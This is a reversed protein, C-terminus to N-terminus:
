RHGNGGGHPSENGRVNGGGGPSRIPRDPQQTAIISPHQIPTRGGDDDHGHGAPPDPRDGGHPGNDHHDHDWRGGWPRGYGGHYYPYASPYYYTRGYLARQEVDFDFDRPTDYYSGGDYYYPGDYVAM